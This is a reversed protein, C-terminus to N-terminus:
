EYDVSVLGSVWVCVCVCVFVYVSVCEYSSVGIRLIKSEPKIDKVCMFEKALGPYLFALNTKFYCAKYYM